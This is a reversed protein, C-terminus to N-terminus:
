SSEGEGDSASASRVGFTADAEGSGTTLLMAEAGVVPESAEMGGDWGTAILCARELVGKRESDDSSLGSVGLFSEPGRAKSPLAPM